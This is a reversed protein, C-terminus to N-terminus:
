KTTKGQKINVIAEASMQLTVPGLLGSDPLTDTKQYHKFSTWTHRDAEPLAADGILRNAWTNIARIVLENRGDRLKGTVDLRFPPKWVVDLPTGNLSVEALERVEGLDLWVRVGAAGAGAFDFETRYEGTGSFFRVAPDAHTNWGILQAFVQPNPRAVGEFSVQWPGRLELPPPMAALTAKVPVQQSSELAYEGSQAAQLVTQGEPQRWVAPCGAAPAASHPWLDVGSRKVSEFHGRDATASFVIFCSEAPGLELPLEVRGNIQRYLAPHQVAGTEPRWIEPAREAVRFSFTARLANTAGNALFYLDRGGDRRHHWNIQPTAEAAVWSLDPQVGLKALAADVTLGALVRGKVVVRDQASKKGDGWLAAIHQAFEMDAAEGGQLGARASPREGLLTGGAAVLEHLKRVAKLTMRKNEPLVLLRYRAAGAVLDSGAVSFLNLLNDQGIWDNAFGAPVDWFTARDDSKALPEEDGLLRCVDAVTRGQRLLLQSRTMSQLWPKVQPWWTVHRNFTTGYHIMTWGPARDGTPQHIYCHLTLQNGGAALVKDGFAKLYRPATNWDGRNCTFVEVPTPSRGFIHAASAADRLGGSINGETSFGGLAWAEGAPIDVHKFYDLPRHIPVPGASSEALFALGHEHAFAQMGGYFSDAVLAQLTRRFDELFRQTTAADNVVRAGLAPLFPLLSYGNRREFEAPLKETWSQGGAEWSDVHLMKLSAADLANGSMLRLSEEAHRRVLQADFKDVEFGHGEAAAPHNKKGTTTYGSRLVLWDGAPADWTLSGDPRLRSTLDVARAAQVPQDAGLLLPRFANFTGKERGTAAAWDNFQPYARPRGGPPLLDLEAIWFNDTRTSAWVRFHQGTVAPFDALAPNNGRQIATAVPRWQKGDASVELTYNLPQAYRFLNGYVYLRGVTVPAPYELRIERKAKLSEGRFLTTTLLDGDMMEDLDRGGQPASLRPKPLAAPTSSASVPYAMVAIDRYFDFYSCPQKLKLTRTGGGTVPTESWMFQKMSHEPDNWPGGATASGPCNHLSVVLGLRQAEALLHRMGATYGPSFTKVDGTKMGARHEIFVILGGVGASALAELDATIGPLDMVESEFFFFVWPKFASPPAAFQAELTSSNTTAPLMGAVLREAAPELLKLSQLFKDTQEMAQMFLEPKALLYGHKGGEHAILECRNGAKHMAADFAQAGKFPTTTDATGHLILTPPAGAQVRHLPSIEQWREGCKKNGYGELSTDIVPFYLVLANPVSSVKVEEGAEDVGAFLATGTAVHGGASGGSVIIKEPDIGLEAAHQRLYRIASRGDKVCDFVTVGSDPKALRYEVSVGLCGQQAFHGAFRYFRSPTGSVWGGGHIAVFCARQDSAKHGTPEFLHLELKRDGVTKYVIRRTPENTESPRAVALAAGKKKAARASAVPEASALLAGILVTGLTCALILQSFKAKM